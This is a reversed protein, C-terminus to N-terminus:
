RIIETIIQYLLYDMLICNSDISTIELADSGAQSNKLGHSCWIMNKYKTISTSSGKTGPNVLKGFDMERRKIPTAVDEMADVVRHSGELPLLWQPCLQKYSAELDKGFDKLGWVGNRVKKDTYSRQVICRLSLLEITLLISYILPKCQLNANGTSQCLSRLIKWPPANPM